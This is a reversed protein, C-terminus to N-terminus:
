GSAKIRGLARRLEAALAELRETATPESPEPDFRLRQHLALAEDLPRTDPLSPRLGGLWAAYPQGPGREGIIKRADSELEHLATRRGNVAHAAGASTVIQRRSKWLRRGIFGLGGVGLASTVMVVLLRNQPDGRWIAFDERARQIGDKLWQLSERQDPELKFWNPPTPDFDIWKGTAENWVRVWAHGHTGRIVWEDRKPDREMVAFGKAYRTPIGAERLILAAATAFYECHGNRNELLFNSIADIDRDNRISLYRTYRFNEFFWETLRQLKEELTPLADLGLEGLVAQLAERESPNVQLDPTASRGSGNELWPDMEPNKDDRWLVDGEIVSQDPFVRVTGFSNMEAGILEFGTLSGADGPLPLPTGEDASGRLSFRPLGLRAETADTETALLRYVEGPEPEITPLERFDEALDESEPPVLNMWTGHTYRHYSATRLHTPRPSGDEVRLRWFIEPSQKIEAMRGIATRSFNPDFDDPDRLHRGGQRRYWDHAADLVKEGLLAGSGALILVGCITVPHAWPAAVLTWGILLLLGALFISSHAERGLTAALLTVVLYVNGFHIHRPAAQVGLQRNRASRQRAFFFFTNLPMTGRLGYSQVFQLPVLLAPLWTLLRPLAEEPAGDLWILVTAATLGVGSLHWARVAARDDFDWRLRIWQAGEVILALLLGLVPRGTMAGWFLLATGLLLRPPHFHRPIATSPHLTKM